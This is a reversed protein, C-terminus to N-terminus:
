LGESLIKNSKPSCFNNPSKFSSLLLIYFLAYLQAFNLSRYLEFILTWSFHAYNMATFRRKMCYIKFHKFIRDTKGVLILKTSQATILCFELMNSCSHFEQKHINICYCIATHKLINPSSELICKIHVMESHLERSSVPYLTPLLHNTVSWYRM